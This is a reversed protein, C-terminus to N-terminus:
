RVPTDLGSASIDGDLGGDKFRERGGKPDLRAAQAV